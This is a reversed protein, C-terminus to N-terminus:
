AATTQPAAAAPGTEQTQDDTSIPKVAGTPSVEAGAKELQSTVSSILEDWSQVFSALGQEELLSVVEGFDIGIRHLDSFVERATEYTGSIANGRPRGHEVVAALTAAPMTNVTDPAALEVVYRTDEYAKDKVGTSAWLLRQMRGGQAQLAQWRSSALTEEYVEYALQANAIAAKGRLDSAETHGEKTMADLRRDVEVDIRSVFFSAVSQLGDLSGGAAM